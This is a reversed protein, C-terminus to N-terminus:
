ICYPIGMVKNRGSWERQSASFNTFVAVNCGCAPLPRCCCFLQSCPLFAQWYVPSFCKGVSLWNPSQGAALIHKDNGSKCFPYCVNRPLNRSSFTHLLMPYSVLCWPGGMFCSWKAIYLTKVKSAPSSALLWYESLGAVPWRSVPKEENGQTKLCISLHNGLNWTAM